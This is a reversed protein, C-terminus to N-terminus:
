AKQIKDIIQKIAMYAGTFCKEGGEPLNVCEPLKELESFGVFSGLHPELSAFGEFGSQALDAFIEPLHGIGLGAPVVGGNEKADKVHMYEIYPKLMEFAEPYTEQGCQIFNAPDFVARLNESGVSELIDLCRPAIDGYILKENEHLLVIDNEKAYKVFCEMRRLVEDRFKESKEDEPMYFSFVRIYKTELVKALEVTNKLKEFHADISNLISTKGIPSGISSVRINAADLEAKVAKMEDATYDSVNKGNVGRMELYGIGLKNLVELQTKLDPSIEDAFGSMIFKSMKERREAEKCCEKKESTKTARAKVAKTYCLIKESLIHFIRLFM